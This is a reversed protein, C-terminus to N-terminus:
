NQVRGQINLISKIKNKINNVSFDQKDMDRIIAEMAVTRAQVNRYNKDKTNWLCPFNRYLDLFVLLNNDSWKNTM